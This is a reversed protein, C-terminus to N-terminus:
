LCRSVVYLPRYIYWLLSCLHMIFAHVHKAATDVVALPQAFQSQLKGNFHICVPSLAYAHVGLIGACICKVVGHLTNTAQTCPCSHVQM